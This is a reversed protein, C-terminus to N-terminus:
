RKCLKYGLDYFPGNWAQAALTDLGVVDVTQFRGDVKTDLMPKTLQHNLDWFYGWVGYINKICSLRGEKGPVCDGFSPAAALVATDFANLWQRFGSHGLGNGFSTPG